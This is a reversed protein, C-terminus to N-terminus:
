TATKDSNGSCPLSTERFSLGSSLRARREIEGIRSSGMGPKASPRLERAKGRPRVEPLERSELRRIELDVYALIKAETGLKLELPAYALQRSCM